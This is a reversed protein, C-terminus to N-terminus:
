GWFDGQLEIYPTSSYGDACFTGKTSHFPFPTTVKHFHDLAVARLGNEIDGFDDRGNGLGVVSNLFANPHRRHLDAPDGFRHFQCTQFHVPSGGHLLDLVQHFVLDHGV